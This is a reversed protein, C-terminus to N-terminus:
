WIGYDGESIRRSIYNTAVVMFFGAVSKFMGAATTFSYQFSGIGIRYIYTDIIDAVDYVAPNYLNMVQDFGADLISGVRLILMVAITPAIGPFTIYLLRQWRSAGDIISAEYIEGDVGALAALYIITGWGVSQWIGSLVLVSRFWQKEAIFYVPKGGLLQIIQNVIGTSPSLVLIVLGGLVIWSFFHPLYSVTQAVKKFIDSKLENFMLALIIPAPFGFIIHYMSIILTNKLVPLFDSGSLIYEFHKLGVWPSNWIGEVLSYDKFAMILGYMPAYKFILFWIFGPIFLLFLYRNMYYIKFNGIIHSRLGYNSLIKQPTNLKSGNTDAM